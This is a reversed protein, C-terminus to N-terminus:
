PSGRPERSTFHLVLGSVFLGHEHWADAAVIDHPEVHATIVESVGPLRTHHFARRIRQRWTLYQNRNVTQDWEDAAWMAVLLRYGVDDQRNTGGSLDLTESRYPSISVAPFAPLSTERDDPSKLIVVNAPDIGDLLLSRIRAQVATLCQELVAQTGDTTQFYVFNSIAVQNNLSSVCRAWYVGSAIEFGIPGDGLRNGVSAWASQVPTGLVPLLSVTNTAAPSSDVIAATATGDGGDTISLLPVAPPDGIDAGLGKLLLGALSM